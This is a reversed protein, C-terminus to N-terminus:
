FAEFIKTIQEKAPHTYNYTGYDGELGMLMIDGKIIVSIDKDFSPYPFKGTNRAKNLATMVDDEITNPDFIYLEIEGGEVELGFGAQAGIMKYSKLIQEGVVLGNARFFEVVKLLESEATVRTKEWEPIYSNTNYDTLEAAFMGMDEELFMKTVVMLPLPLEPNVCMEISIDDEESEMQILYGEVGAYKGKNNLIKLLYSDGYEDTIYGDQGHSLENEYLPNEMWPQWITYCLVENIEYPLEMFLVAMFNVFINEIDGTKGPASAVFTEGNFNGEVIIRIMESHSDAIWFTAEGITKLEQEGRKLDYTFSHGSDFELVKWIEGGADVEEVAWPCKVLLLILIILLLKKLLDKNKMKNEGEKKM